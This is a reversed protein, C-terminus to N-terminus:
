SWINDQYTDGTLIGESSWILDQYKPLESLPVPYWDTENKKRIQIAKLNFNNDTSDYRSDVVQRYGLYNSKNGTTNNSQGDYVRWIGNCNSFVEQVLKQIVYEEDLVRGPDQNIITTIFENKDAQESSSNYANYEASTLEVIGKFTTGDEEYVRLYYVGAEQQGINKVLRWCSGDVPVLYEEGFNIESKNIERLFYIYGKIDESQKFEARISYKEKYVNEIKDDLDKPVYLYLGQLVVSEWYIQRGNEPAAAKGGGWPLVGYAGIFAIPDTLNWDILQHSQRLYNLYATHNLLRRLTIIGMYKLHEKTVEDKSYINKEKADEDLVQDWYNDMNEVDESNQECGWYFETPQNGNDWKWSDSIMPTTRAVPTYFSCQSPKWKTGMPIGFVNGSADVPNENVGANKLYGISLNTLYNTHTKSSNVQERFVYSNAGGKAGIAASSFFNGIRFLDGKMQINTIEGAVYSVKKISHKITTLNEGKYADLNRRPYNFFSFSDKNIPNGTWEIDEVQEEECSFTIEDLLNDQTNIEDGGLYYFEGVDYVSLTFNFTSKNTEENIVQQITPVVRIQGYYLREETEQLEPISSLPRGLRVSMGNERIAVLKDIYDKVDIKLDKKFRKIIKRNGDDWDQSFPDKKRLYFCLYPIQISEHYNRYFPESRTYPILLLNSEPYKYFYKKLKNNIADDDNVPDYDDYRRREENIKGDMPVFEIHYNESVRPENLLKFSFWLFLVNEWLEKIENTIGQQLVLIPSQPSFLFEVMSSLVSSIVWFNRTLDEAQVRRTNKPMLLRYSNESEQENTFQLNENDKVASLSDPTYPDAPTGQWPKIFHQDFDYGADGSAFNKVKKSISDPGDGFFKEWNDYLDQVSSNWFDSLVIAFFAEINKDGDEKQFPDIKTLEITGDEYKTGVKGIIERWTEPTILFRNM